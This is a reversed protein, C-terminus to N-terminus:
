YKKVLQTFVDVIANEFADKHVGGNRTDITNVFSRIDTKDSDNFQIAVEIPITNTKERVFSKGNKLETTKDKYKAITNITYIGKKSYEDLNSVLSPNSTSIYDVIGSVGGEGTLHYEGGGDEPSRTNDYIDFELGPVVYVTYRMRDIFDDIILNDVSSFFDNNFLFTIRTGSMKKLEEGEHLEKSPEEGTMHHKALQKVTIGNSFEQSYIQGNRFVEVLFKESMANVCAGGVGNLSAGAKGPESEGFAGGSHLEALCKEIGNKGTEKDIGTPIGRGNDEVIISGDPEFTVKIRNCFGKIAETVSNDSIERLCINKQGPTNADKAQSGLYMGSRQQVVEPFDLTKIDDVTYAM